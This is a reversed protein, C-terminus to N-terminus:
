KVPVRQKLEEFWNLTINIQEPPAKGTDPQAKPLMIVFYKGDPSIDYARPGIEVIGEIPLPTTKGFVFSPQTQVDVSVIRTLGAGKIPQYYLQKGNPSWLPNRGGGTSIQYKAGTPPFPQVYVQLQGSDNSSYALWHGDPSLSSNSNGSYAPLLPKPNKDVGISLM